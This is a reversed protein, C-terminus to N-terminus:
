PRNNMRNYKAPALATWCHTSQAWERRRPQLRPSTYMRTHHMTNGPIVCQQGSSHISWACTHNKPIRRSLTQCSTAANKCAARTYPLLTVPRGAVAGCSAAAGSGAAAGCDVACGRRPAPGYHAESCGGGYVVSGVTKVLLIFHHVLSAHGLLGLTVETKHHIHQLWFLVWNFTHWCNLCEQPGMYM